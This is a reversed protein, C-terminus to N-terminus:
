IHILSLCVRLARDGWGESMPESFQVYIKLLNVPVQGVDPYIATVRATPVTDKEPRRVNWVEPQVEPARVLALSYEMGDVFPFRPTFYVGDEEAVFRGAVAPVGPTVGWSAVVQAPFLALRLSTEGGGPGRLEEIEADSWGTIRLATRGNRDCWELELNRNPIM